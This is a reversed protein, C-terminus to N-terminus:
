IIFSDTSCYISCIHGYIFFVVVFFLRYIFLLCPLVFSYCQPFVYNCVAYICNPISDNVHSLYCPEWALPFNSKKRLIELVHFTRSNVQPEHM